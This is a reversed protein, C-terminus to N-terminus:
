VGEYFWRESDQAEIWETHRRNFVELQDKHQQFAEMAKVFAANANAVPISEVCVPMGIANIWLDCGDYYNDAAVVWLLAKCVADFLENAKDNM